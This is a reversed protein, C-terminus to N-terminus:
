PNPSRDILTVNVSGDTDSFCTVDVVSDITLDFTNPENIYHTSQLTCGTDLDTVTIIYNGVPLDTFVGTINNQSPMIGAFDELLFELNPTGGTSTVTVIIDEDNTCTIADDITIDLDHISIFPLVTATATGICNNDDYVNITYDGGLFDTETYMNNAGYQVTTGNKIFEYITYNGSGGTVSNVTISAFNTTNTGSTCAYDVVVPAAVNITAPVGIVVQEVSVCNRGSTVQVDYTGAPLNTFINSTQLPRTVPGAIIEYTYIPNDNSAPLNVVIAGDNGGNCSVDTATTTFTVPTPAELTVDVDNTCGTTTD